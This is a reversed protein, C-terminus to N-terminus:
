FSGFCKIIWSEIKIRILIFIYLNILWYFYYFIQHDSIKFNIVWVIHLLLNLKMM